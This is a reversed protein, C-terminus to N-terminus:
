DTSVSKVHLTPASEAPLSFIFTSGQGPISELWIRGGHAEIIGKAISLGLGTGRKNATRRSHWYRDFVRPQDAVPIGPGTDRVSFVVSGARSEARVAIRGGDPTFKLANRLLNGLVQIIRSGDVTLSPLETSSQSTLEIRRGTAEVEFMRLAKEVISTASERHRELSLRGAEISAVDLLDQILRNMWETSQVITTLLNEREANEAWNDRLASACMAIASIPNRLDHSVVGLVQDRGETARRAERYLRANELALSAHAAFKEALLQTDAGYRSRGNLAVLTVAGFTRESVTLPVVLMSRVGLRQWRTLSNPDEEHAELWADDVQEVIETRGRRMVDVAPSLSDWTLDGGSTLAARVEDRNPEAGNAVRRVFNQGDLVDVISADGLMPTACDAVTQLVEEFGLSASLRASTDALFQESEQARRRETIDRVVATYVRRGGPLDLKSISAEAPFESGDRRRGAVERRHGMRRASEAGRGFEEVFADHRPRFREPLLTNLHQGLAEGSSWGFIEEAGKNFHIIRHSEDVTIVADAAIALIGAFMADSAHRGEELREREALLARVARQRYLSFGVAALAALLAVLRLWAAGDAGRALERLTIALPVVLVALAVILAISVTRIKLFPM